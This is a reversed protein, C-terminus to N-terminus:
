RTAVGVNSMTTKMAVPEARGARPVERVSIVIKYFVTILLAGVAWIGLVITWEPLTPSYTTVAGLPSPVFGGVILGMGKDLWLSVFVAICAVVLAKENARIKPVLLVLLMFVYTVVLSTLGSLNGYAKSFPALALSPNTWVSTNVAWGLIDKGVLLGLSLAFVLLGLCVALWDENFASVPPSTPSAPKMPAKAPTAM